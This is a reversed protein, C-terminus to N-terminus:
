GFLKYGEADVDYREVKKYETVYIAKEGTPGFCVNTPQLGPTGIRELVAGDPALVTVDAQGYTTEREV